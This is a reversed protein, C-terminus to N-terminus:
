TGGTGRRCVSGLAIKSTGFGARAGKTRGTRRVSPGADGTQLRKERLQQLAEFGENLEAQPPAGNRWKEFKQM